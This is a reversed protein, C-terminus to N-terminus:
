GHSSNEKKPVTDREKEKESCDLCVIVGEVMENYCDGCNWKKCRSCQRLHESERECYACIKLNL